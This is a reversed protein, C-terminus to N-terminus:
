TRLEGSYGALSWNLYRISMDQYSSLCCCNRKGQDRKGGGKGSRNFEEYQFDMAPSIQVFYGTSLHFAKKAQACQMGIFTIQFIVPVKVSIRNYCQDARCHALGWLEVGETFAEWLLDDEIRKEPLGEQNSVMAWWNFPELKEQMVEVLGSLRLYDLPEGALRELHLGLPNTLWHQSVVSM